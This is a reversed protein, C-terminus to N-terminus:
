GKRRAIQAPYHKAPLEDVERKFDHVGNEQKITYFIYWSWM